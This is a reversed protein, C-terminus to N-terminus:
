RWEAVEADIKKRSLFMGLTFPYVAMLGMVIGTQLLIGHWIQDDSKPPPPTRKAQEMMKVQFDYVQKQMQIQAPATLVTVVVGILLMAIRLIVWKKLLGVASRKRRLLGIGGTLLMIGLVLIPLVLALLTLRLPTPMNVGGRYMEPIFDMVGLWVGQLTFCALGGIAYIISIVGFVTPWRSPPLEDLLPGAETPPTPTQDTEDIM